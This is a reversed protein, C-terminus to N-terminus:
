FRKEPLDDDDRPVYGKGTHKVKLLEELTVGLATAIEPLLEANAIKGGTEWTALNSHAFKTGTRETLFAALKPQSIGAQYRLRAIWRGLTKARTKEAENM